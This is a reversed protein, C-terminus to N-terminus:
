VLMGIPGGQPPRDIPEGIPYSEVGGIVWHRVQIVGWRDFVDGLDDQM